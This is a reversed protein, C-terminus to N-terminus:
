PVKDGMAIIRASTSPGDAILERGKQIRKRKRSIKRM